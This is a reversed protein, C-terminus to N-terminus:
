NETTEVVHVESFLGAKELSRFVNQNKYFENWANELQSVGNTLYSPNALVAIDVCSDITAKSRACSNVLLVTEVGKQERFYDRTAYTANKHEDTPYTESLVVEM